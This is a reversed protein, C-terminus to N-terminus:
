APPLDLTLLAGGEPRNGARIRGRHEEVVRQVISLGLGTGGRRRTFFPNFV